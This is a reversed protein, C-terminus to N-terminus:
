IFYGLWALSLKDSIWSNPSIATMTDPLLNESDYFWAEILNRSTGKFIFLPDMQWGDTAICELATINEGRKTEALDPCSSKAGIVNRARGQGPQFGCEDFNYVLRAPVNHLVKELLDYWHQLLGADEAQIRRLEKTKQKM